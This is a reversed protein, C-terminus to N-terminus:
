QKRNWGEIPKELALDKASEEMVRGPIRYVTIGLERALEDQIGAQHNPM